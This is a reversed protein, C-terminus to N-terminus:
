KVEPYKPNYVFPHGTYLTLAERALGRVMTLRSPDHVDNRYTRNGMGEIELLIDFIRQRQEQTLEM